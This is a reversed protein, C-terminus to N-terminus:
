KIHKFKGEIKVPQLYALGWRRWCSPYVAAAGNEVPVVCLDNGVPQRPFPVKKTIEVM